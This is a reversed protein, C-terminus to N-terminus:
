QRWERTSFFKVRTRPHTFFFTELSIMRFLTRQSPHLIFDYRLHIFLFCVQCTVPGFNPGTVQIRPSLRQVIVKLRYHSVQCLVKGMKKTTGHKKGFDLARQLWLTPTKMTWTNSSRFARNGTVLHLDYPQHNLFGALWNLNTTLGM